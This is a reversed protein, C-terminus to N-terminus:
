MESSSLMVPRPLSICATVLTELIFVDPYKICFLLLIICLYELQSSRPNKVEISEPLKPFFTPCSRRNRTEADM